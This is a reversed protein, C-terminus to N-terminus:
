STATVLFADKREQRSSEPAYDVQIAGEASSGKVNDPTSQEADVETTPANTVPYPNSSPEHLIHRAVLSGLPKEKWGVRIEAARGQPVGPVFISVYSVGLAPDTEPNFPAQQTVFLVIANPLNGWSSMGTLVIIGQWFDRPVYCFERVLYGSLFGFALYVIAIVVLPGLSSINSPTFAPVVRSRGDPPFLDMKALVYGAIITIFTKLLPVIGSYILFAASAM